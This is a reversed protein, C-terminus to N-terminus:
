KISLYKVESLGEIVFFSTDNFITYSACKYGFIQHEICGYYKDVGNITYSISICGFSVPIADGMNELASMYDFIKYRSIEDPELIDIYLSNVFRMDLKIMSVIHKSKNIVRLRYYSNSSQDDNVSACNIILFIVILFILKKM